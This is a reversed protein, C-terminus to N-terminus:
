TCQPHSFLISLALTEDSIVNWLKDLILRKKAGDEIVDLIKKYYLFSRGDFSFLFRHYHYFYGKYDIGHSLKNIDYNCEVDEAEFFNIKSIEPVNKVSM